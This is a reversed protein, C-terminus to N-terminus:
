FQYCIALSQPSAGLSVKTGKKQSNHKNNVHLCYQLVDFALLFGGQLLLSEGYGKMQQQNVPLQQQKSRNQLYLGAAMYGVDLGTNILLVKELQKQQHDNKEASINSPYHLQKQSNIYALTAIGLNITNWYGNMRHFYKATGENNPAAAASYGINAVAWAGLGLMSSRIIQNRKLQISDRQQANCPMNAVLLAVFALM